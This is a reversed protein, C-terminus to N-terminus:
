VTTGEEWNGELAKNSQGEIGIQSDMRALRGPAGGQLLFIM